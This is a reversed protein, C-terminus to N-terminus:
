SLINNAISNGAGSDTIATGVVNAVAINSGSGSSFRLRNGSGNIFRNGTIINSVGDITLNGSTGFAIFNNQIVGYGTILDVDALVAFNCDYMSFETLESWELWDLNVAGGAIFRCNILTLYIDDPAGIVGGIAFRNGSTGIANFDCNEFRLHFALGFSRETGVAVYCNSFSARSSYGDIYNGGGFFGCFTFITYVEGVGGADYYRIGPGVETNFGINSFRQEIFTGPRIQQISLYGGDNEDCHIITLDSGDGILSIEPPIILEGSLFHDGAVLYILGGGRAEVYDVASELTDFAEDDDPDVIAAYARASYRVKDNVISEAPHDVVEDTRHAELSQNEMVHATPDDNHDQIYRAIAEEIKEDDTQTKPLDQWPPM